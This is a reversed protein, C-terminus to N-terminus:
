PGQETATRPPGGGRGREDDRDDKARQARPQLVRDIAAEVTGAVVRKPPDGVEELVQTGALRRRFLDLCNQPLHEGIRPQLEQEEKGLTLEIHVRTAYRDGVDRVVPALADRDLAAALREADHDM